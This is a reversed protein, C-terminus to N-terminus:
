GHKHSSKKKKDKKSHKKTKVEEEEAEMWSEDVEAAVVGGGAGAGALAGAGFSPMSEEVVDAGVAGAGAAAAAASGVSGGVPPLKSACVRSAFHAEIAAMEDSEWVAVMGKDGGTALLFPHETQYCLAFLKGVNMSKYAVVEPQVGSYATAASASSGGAVIAPSAHAQHLRNVDWVKVTKDVSATALMGQVTDCFSLSSVTHDHAQFIVASGSTMRIDFCAVQGSEMSCYLHYACFPDWVMAEIDAPITYRGAIGGSRCDLLAVSKDFSGSALLWGELPHWSM